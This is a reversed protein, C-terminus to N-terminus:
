EVVKYEIPAGDPLGVLQTALHGRVRMGEVARGAYLNEVAYEGGLVFPVKPLLRRGAALPGHLEQWRHAIPFGTSVNFDDVIRRV